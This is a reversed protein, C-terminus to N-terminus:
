GLLDATYDSSVNVFFDKKLTFAHDNVTLSTAELSDQYVPYYLQYSDNGGGPLLGLSRFHNEIYAAAKRQGPTATERGEFDASAVIYLHKKLDAATITKAFPEPNAIKQAQAAGAVCLLFAFLLPSMTRM